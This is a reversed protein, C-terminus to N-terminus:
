SKKKGGHNLLFLGLLVLALGGVQISSLSEGDALGWVLSVFPVVYTVATARVPGANVILWNYKVICAMQMVVTLWFWRALPESFLRKLSLWISDPAGGNALVVLSLPILLVMSHTALTLSPVGQLRLRIVMATAAWLVCAGIFWLAGLSLGSLIGLGARSLVLLMAGGVGLLLGYVAQRSLKERLFLWAFFATVIPTLAAFMGALASPETRQALTTFLVPGFSGSVGILFFWPWLQEHGAGAGRTRLARLRWALPLFFLGAFVYRWAVLEGVTFAPLAKKVIIYMSGWLLCVLLFVRWQRATMGKM